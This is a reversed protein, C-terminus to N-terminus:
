CIVQRLVADIMLMMMKFIGAAPPVLTPSPHPHPGHSVAAACVLSTYTALLRCAAPHQQFSTFPFTSNSAAALKL